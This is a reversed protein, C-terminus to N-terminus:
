VSTKREHTTDSQFPNQAFLKEAVFINFEFVGATMNGMNGAPFMRKEIQRDRLISFMM